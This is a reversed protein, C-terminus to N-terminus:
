DDLDLDTLSGAKLFLSSLDWVPNTELEVHKDYV